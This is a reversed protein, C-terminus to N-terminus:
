PGETSLYYLKTIYYSLVQERVIFPELDLIEPNLQIWVRLNFNWLLHFELSAFHSGEM